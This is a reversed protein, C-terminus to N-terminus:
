KMKREKSAKAKNPGRTRRQKPAESPGHGNLAFMVEGLNGAVVLSPDRNIRCAPPSYNTSEITLVLDPNIAIIEDSRWKQMPIYTM